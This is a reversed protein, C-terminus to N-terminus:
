KVASLKNEKREEIFTYILDACSECFYLVWETEDKKSGYGWVALFSAYEYSEGIKNMTTKECIDCVLDVVVEQEVTQKERIIGM